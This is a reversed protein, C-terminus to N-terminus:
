CGTNCTFRGGPGFTIEPLVAVGRMDVGNSTLQSAGGVSQTDVDGTIDLTGGGTVEGVEFRANAGSITINQVDTSVALFSGGNNVSASSAAIDSASLNATSLTNFQAHSSNIRQAGGGATFRVVDASFDNDINIPTNAGTTTLGDMSEIDGNTSVDGAVTVGGRVRAFGRFDAVADVTLTDTMELDDVGRLNNNSMDINVAMRNFLTSGAVNTRYLYDGLENEFNIFSYAVAHATQGQTDPATINAGLTTALSNEPVTWMGYTGVVANNNYRGAPDGNIELWLGGQGGFSQTIELAREAPLPAGTTTTLLELVSTGLSNIRYAVVRVDRGFGNRQNFGTDLYGGGTLAAFPIEQGANNALAGHITAFNATNTDMLYDYAAEHIVRMHEAASISQKEDIFDKTMQVFGLAIFGIVGVSLLMELLSFGHQNKLGVCLIRRKLKQYLNKM